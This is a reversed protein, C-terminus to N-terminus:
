RIGPSAPDPWSLLLFQLWRHLLHRMIGAAAAFPAAGVVLGAASWRWRRLTGCRCGRSIQEIYPRRAPTGSDQFARTEQVRAGSRRMTLISNFLPDIDIPPHCLMPRSPSKNLNEGCDIVCSDALATAERPPLLTVTPAPGPENRTACGDSAAAIWSRYIAWRLPRHGPEGHIVASAGGIHAAVEEGISVDPPPRRRPVSRLSWEPPGSAPRGVAQRRNCM